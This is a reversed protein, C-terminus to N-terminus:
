KSNDTPSKSIANGSKEKSRDDQCYNPLQKDRPYIFFFRSASVLFGDLRKYSNITELQPQVLLFIASPQNLDIIEPMAIIINPKEM